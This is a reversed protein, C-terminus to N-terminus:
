RPKIVKTTDGKKAKAASDASRAKASDARAKASDAATPPKPTVLVTKASGTRGGVLRVDRLEVFYNQGLQVKGRTRIVLVSELKPRKQAPLDPAPARRANPDRVAPPNAKAISDRRVSDRTFASDEAPTRPKPAPKHISDSVSKLLAEIPGISVTDPRTILGFRISNSDLRLTPDLPRAFTVSVFESDIRTISNIKPPLTDRGFMWIEGTTDTTAAVRVSDWPDTLRRQHRGSADAIAYVLFPGEPLADFHFRGTTDALAVYRASDPLHIAYILAGRLGSMAMWDIARGSLTRTPRPDCTAFAIVAGTKLTNQHLDAVGPLLQIRYVTHDSWGARPRVSIRDRNWEVKPVTTDPSLILLKELSGDGLGFNPSGADSTVEDFRFEAYGKYGCPVTGSDPFTGLLVPPTLRPPGGPPASMRACAAVLLLFGILRKLRRM